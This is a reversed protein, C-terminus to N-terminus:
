ADLSYFLCEAERRAYVVASSLWSKRNPGTLPIKPSSNLEIWACLPCQRLDSEQRCDPPVLGQLINACYLGYDASTGENGGASGENPVDGYPFLGVDPVSCHQSTLRNCWRYLPM